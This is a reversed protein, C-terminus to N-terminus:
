KNREKVYDSLAKLTGARHKFCSLAKKAASIEKELLQKSREIGCLAPYTSKQHEQDSGAKKGLLGTDGLVNLLDDQIQFAVGLHEAYTTLARLEKLDAGALIAGVRVAARLLMGTKLFHLRRLASLQIKKGEAQLDLAQGAAMGRGGCAEVLEAIVRLMTASSVKRRDTRQVFVNFAEAQLTDGALIAIAEGYVKHNTPRGRRLDDNDMAPLDDHILSYVHIMELACATPMVYKVPFDLLEAVAITLIPRLRKGPALLSYRLAEGLVKPETRQSNYKRLYSEVTKRRAKLYVELEM